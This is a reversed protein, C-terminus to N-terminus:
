ANIHFTEIDCLLVCTDMAPHGVEGGRRSLGIQLGSTLNRGGLCLM